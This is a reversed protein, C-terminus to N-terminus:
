VQSGEGYSGAATLLNDLTSGKRNYHHGRGPAVQGASHIM